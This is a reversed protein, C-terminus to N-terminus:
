EAAEAITEGHILEASCRHMTPSARTIANTLYFDSIPLTMPGSADAPLSPPAWPLDILGDRGLAPVEAVM